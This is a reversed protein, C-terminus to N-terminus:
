LKELASYTQELDHVRCDNVRNCLRAVNKAFSNAFDPIGDEM